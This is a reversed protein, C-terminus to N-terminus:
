GLRVRVGLGIGKAEKSFLNLVDERMSVIEESILTFAARQLKEPHRSAQFRSLDYV